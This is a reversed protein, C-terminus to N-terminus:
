KTWDKLLGEAYAKGWNPDLETAPKFTEYAAVAKKLWDIGISKGGGFAEPTYFKSQAMQTLARPNDAPQEKLAQQLLEGSKPGMTMYRSNDVSMRASLVLSKLTTIESNQPNLSEAM